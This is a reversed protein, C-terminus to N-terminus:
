VAPNTIKYIQYEAVYPKASFTTITLSLVMAMAVHALVHWYM